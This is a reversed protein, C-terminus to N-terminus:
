VVCSFISGIYRTYHFFFWTVSISIFPLSLVGTSYLKQLLELHGGLNVVALALCTSHARLVVARTINYELLVVAILMM